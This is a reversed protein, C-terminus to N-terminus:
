LSRAAGPPAARAGGRLRNGGAIPEYTFDRQNRCRQWPGDHTTGEERYSRADLGRCTIGTPARFSMSREYTILRPHMVHLVAAAFRNYPHGAPRDGHLMRREQM